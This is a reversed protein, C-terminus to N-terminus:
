GKYGDIMEVRKVHREETSPETKLFQDIIDKARMLSLDGALAIVNAHNHARAHKADLISTVRACRVKKVKNCAISVGIGNGCIVIGLNAEQKKVAEGVQFAYVPYDTSEETDAGYNHITYGKKELYKTLKQKLKVGRHDNGIAINM